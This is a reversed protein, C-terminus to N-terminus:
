MGRAVQKWMPLLDNREVVDTDYPSVGNAFVPFGQERLQRADRVPGELVAGVAGQSRAALCFLEGFLAAEVATDLHYVAVDGPQLAALAAMEGTYPEELVTATAHVDITPAWGVVRNGPQLPQINAAMVQRREGVGDLADAALAVSLQGLDAVSLGYCAVGTQDESM